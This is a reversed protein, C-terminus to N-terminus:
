FIRIIQYDKRVETFYIFNLRRLQILSYIKENITITNRTLVAHSVNRRAFCNNRPTCGTHLCNYYINNRSFLFM